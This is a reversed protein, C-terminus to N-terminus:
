RNKYTSEFDKNLYLKQLLNTANFDNIKIILRKEWEVVNKVISLHKSKMEQSIKTFNVFM